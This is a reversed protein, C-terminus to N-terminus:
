LACSPLPAPGGPAEPPGPHGNDGDAGPSSLPIPKGVCSEVPGVSGAPFGPLGESGAAEFLAAPAPQEKAQHSSSGVDAPPDRHGNGGNTNRDM